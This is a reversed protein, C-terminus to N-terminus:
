ELALESYSPTFPNRSKSNVRSLSDQIENITITEQIEDYPEYANDPFEIAQTQEETYANEEEQFVV